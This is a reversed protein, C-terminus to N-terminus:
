PQPKVKKVEIVSEKGGDASWIKVIQLGVSKCLSQWHLETREIGSTHLWMLIDMEAERLKADTEPVVYDDILLTSYDADM